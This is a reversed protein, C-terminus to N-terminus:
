WAPKTERDPRAAGARRLVRRHPPMALRHRACDPEGTRRDWVVTTERQNTIGIAAIDRAEVKASELREALRMSNPAGIANADQEVWGPQPYFCDIPSSEM